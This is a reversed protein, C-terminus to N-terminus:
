QEPSVYYPSGLFAATGTLALQGIEGTVKSIGFDLVKPEAAGLRAKALFINEPKLDRHIVGAEHAAAVAACVPLMVDATQQPELRGIRDILAGLSEGELYEMVLYPMGTELGVDFVDVVNPHQIRSAAEGERMFRAVALESDAYRRHLVKIAVRKKLTPHLGEYVAGMGGTGLRRVISYRGFKTGPQLLDNDDKTALPGVVSGRSRVTGCAEPGRTRPALQCGGVQAGLM